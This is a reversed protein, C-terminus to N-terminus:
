PKTPTSSGEFQQLLPAVTTDGPAAAQLRKLTAIADATRGMDKYQQALGEGAEVYAPDMSYAYELQKLAEAAKGTGNLARAYQVRIAPGYPEVEIGKQSWTIADEFYKENLASGGINYLSSLFVYNDYENPVIAITEKLAAASADFKEQAQASYQAYDGGSQKAQYAANILDVFENRYSMGIEASYMDNWPNLQAAKIAAQTAASGNLVANAQLYQWDAAMFVFQYGIGVLALFIGVSAAAIGWDPAEFDVFTATPALVV